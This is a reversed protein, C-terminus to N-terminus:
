KKNTCFRLQKKHKSKTDQLNVVQKNTGVTKQHLGPNETPLSMQLSRSAEKLNQSQTKHLPRLTPPELQCRVIPPELQCTIIVMVLDKHKRLACVRDLSVPRLGHFMKMCTAWMWLPHLELWQDPNKCFWPPWTAHHNLAHVKTDSLFPDLNQNQRLYSEELGLAWHGQRELSSLLADGESHQWSGTFSHM